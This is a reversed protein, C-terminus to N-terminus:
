KIYDLYEAFIQMIRSPERKFEYRELISKAKESTVFDKFEMNNKEAGKILANLMGSTFIRNISLEPNDFMKQLNVIRQTYRHYVSALSANESVAKTDKFVYDGNLLWKKPKAGYSYYIYTNNTEHILDIVSDDVEVVKGSDLHLTNGDIQNIHLNTIDSLLKGRVGNYLLVLLLQDCPNYIEKLYSNLTDEGIYKNELINKSIYTRFDDQTFTDFYPTADYCIGGNDDELCWIKYEKLVSNTLNLREKSKANLSKYFEIIEPRTFNCIDKNALSELREASKFVNEVSSPAIERTSLYYEIFKRKISENYM